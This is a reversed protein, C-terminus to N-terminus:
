KTSDKKAKPAKASAPLSPTNKPPATTPKVLKTLKRQKIKVTDIVAEKKAIAVKIMGAAGPTERAPLGFAAFSMVVLAVIIIVYRKM